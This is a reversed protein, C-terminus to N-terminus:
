NVCNTAPGMIEGLMGQVNLADQVLDNRRRNRDLKKQWFFGILFRLWGPSILLVLSGMDRKALDDVEAKAERLIHTFNVVRGRCLDTNRWILRGDELSIISFLLHCYCTIDVQLWALRLQMKVCRPSTKPEKLFMFLMWLNLEVQFRALTGM